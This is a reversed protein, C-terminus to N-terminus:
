VRLITSAQFIDICELLGGVASKLPPFLDLSERLARLGSELGTWAINATGRSVTNHNTLRTSQHNPSSQIASLAAPKPSPSSFTDIIRDGLRGVKVRFGAPKPPM